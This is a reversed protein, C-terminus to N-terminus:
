CSGVGPSARVGRRGLVTAALASAWRGAEGEAKGASGKAEGGRAAWGNKAVGLERGAGVGAATGAARRVGCLAQWLSRPSPTCTPPWPWAAQGWGVGGGARGGQGGARGVGGWGVCEVLKHAQDFCAELLDACAAQGPPVTGAHVGFGQPTSALRDADIQQLPPNPYSLPTTPRAGAGRGPGQRARGGRGPGERARGAGGLGMTWGQARAQLHGQVKKVEKEDVESAPLALLGELHQSFAPAPSDPDADPAALLAAPRWCGGAQGPM